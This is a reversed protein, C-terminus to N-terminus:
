RAPTLPITPPALLRVIPYPAGPRVWADLFNWTTLGDDSQPELLYLALIALPQAARVIYASPDVVLSDSQQWRGTLRVPAHGQFQREAIVSDVMFTEGHLREPAGLREIFLGNRRLSELLASQEAPIVWAWPLTQQLVPDFRDYIPVRSKLIKGTRREGKNLGPETLVTDGTRLVEEIRMEDVRPTRTLRSRIPILPSANRTSAFATTKRDADRGLDAFDEHNAAIFSLLESVFSYTSIIRDRFPDHSYAESLIAVRGRLGYYNVGFRPRHDYTFWGRDTSDQSVFNGYPFTEIHERERLLNRVAPLITDRTFPGSFLSAPNLPPAWTLDYGHYSGDTTHLDVFVDPDWTRFFDISARTEPAEAKIYDRNLDLGAGNPRQGILAPGNQETRNREQPGMADNGDANYIPVAVIVLSDMVNLYTDSSLDRLLALLAEKWEVEGGHINGQLYVIPRNLRKAEAATRVVPRSMIVMPIDKGQSTRGFTGFSLYRSSNSAKLSDLFLMVDAYRSTETFSTKEPRTLPRRTMLDRPPYIGGPAPGVPTTNAGGGSGGSTCAVIALALVAFKRM